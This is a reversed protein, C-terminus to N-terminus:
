RASWRVLAAIAGGLSVGVSVALLASVVRVARVGMESPEGRLAPVAVDRLEDESKVQLWKPMSLFLNVCFAAINVVFVGLIGFM